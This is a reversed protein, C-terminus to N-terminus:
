GAAWHISDGRPNDIALQGHQYGVIGKRLVTIKGRNVVPVLAPTAMQQKQWDLAAAKKEAVTYAGDFEALVEDFGENSKSAVYFSTSASFLALSAQPSIWGVGGSWACDVGNKAADPPWFATVFEANTVLRGKMRIGAKAYQDVVVAFATEWGTGPNYVCNLDIGNPFGADALLQKAKAPNYDYVPAGQNYFPSTPPFMQDAPSGVGGTLLDNLTKRDLAYNLAQRVRVDKLQPKDKNFYGTAMGITIGKFVQYNADKEFLPLDSAQLRFAGDTQGSKLANAMATQDKFLTLTIEKLKAGHDPNWYNPNPVFTVSVNARNEKLKYPGAGIAADKADTKGMASTTKGVILGGHDTLEEPLSAHEKLLNIAFVTPSRVTVDKVIAKLPLLIGYDRYREISAKAAESDLPSGDSFKLNPRLTIVLTTKNEFEWKEALGTNKLQLTDNDFGILPEHLLYTYSYNAGSGITDLSVLPLTTGINLTDKVPGTPNNSSSGCGSLALAISTV